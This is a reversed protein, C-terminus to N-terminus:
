QASKVRDIIVNLDDISKAGNEELKNVDCSNKSKM